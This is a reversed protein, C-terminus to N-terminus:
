PEDDFPTSNRIARGMWWGWALYHFATFAFVWIIITLPGAYFLTLLGLGMAALIAVTAMILLKLLPNNSPKPEDSDAPEAGRDFPRLPRRQESV